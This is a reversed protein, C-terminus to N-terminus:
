VMFFAVRPMSPWYKITSHPSSPGKFRAAVNDSVLTATRKTRCRSWCRGLIQALLDARMPIQFELSAESLPLRDEGVEFVSEPGTLGQGVGAARASERVTEDRNM